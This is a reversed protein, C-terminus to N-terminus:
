IRVISIIRKIVIIIFILLFTLIFINLRQKFPDYLSESTIVKIALLGLYIFIFFIELNNNGTILYFFIIWIIFAMTIIEPINFQKKLSNYTNQRRSDNQSIPNNRNNQQYDTNISRNFPLRNDSIFALIVAGIIILTFSTKLSFLGPDSLLLIGMIIALLGLLKVGLIIKFVKKRATTSKNKITFSNSTTLDNNDQKKQLPHIVGLRGCNPCHLIIQESRDPRITIIHQCNTCRFQTQGQDINLRQNDKSNEEKNFKIRKREKNFIKLNLLSFSSLLITLLFSIKKV